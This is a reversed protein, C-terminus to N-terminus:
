PNVKILEVQFILTSGGPISGGAGRDGYALNSPIYFIFKSGEPMLQVGETWGAIVQNLGFTIPEGREISSDFITGDLLKGEYHVQVKDTATPRVGTGLTVVEYQLGSSTTQVGQRTANAALFDEGAKKNAAIQENGASQAEQQQAAMMNQQWKTLVAEIESATYLGSGAIGAKVGELVFEPNFQYPISKLQQGMSFGLMYSVTDNETKM